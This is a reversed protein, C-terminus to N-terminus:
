DSWASSLFTAADAIVASFSHPGDFGTSGPYANYNGQIYVPNESAVTFGPAPLFNTSATNGGNVLRLARRFYYQRNKAARMVPMLNVGWVNVAEIDINTRITAGNAHSAGATGLQGRVITLINGSKSTLQIVENDVRYYTGATFSS